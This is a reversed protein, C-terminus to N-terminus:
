GLEGGRAVWGGSTKGKPPKLGGLAISGGKSKKSKKTMFDRWTGVRGERTSEWEKEHSRQRKAKEKEQKYEEKAREGEEEIRKTLKRRRWEARALMERGKVKWKEQFEESQEYQAEVGQKGEQHLVSALRVAADHKSAKKWEKKLEEKAVGLVYDLGKCKEEDQLDKYAAGIVEFADKARPHKCKDPHVMLSVKRYQRKIDELTADFRLGLQEYPNLKFSGLIRNVENDRDVDRLETYFEKLTADAQPDFPIFEAAQQKALEEAERQRQALVLPDEDEDPPLEPLGDASM